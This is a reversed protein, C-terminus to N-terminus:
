VAGMDLRREIANKVEAICLTALDIPSALYPLATALDKKGGAAARLFLFLPKETVGRGRCLAQRGRCEQQWTQNGIKCCGQITPPVMENELCPAPESSPPLSICSADRM